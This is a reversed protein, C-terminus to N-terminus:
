KQKILLFTNPGQNLSTEVLKFGANLLDSIAQACNTQLVITPVGSSSTANFVTYGISPNGDFRCTLITTETNKSFHEGESAAHVPTSLVSVLSLSLLSAIKIFPKRM